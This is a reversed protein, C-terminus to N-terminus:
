IAMSQEELSENMAKKFAGMDGKIINLRKWQSREDVSKIILVKKLRSITESEQINQLPRFQEWSTQDM